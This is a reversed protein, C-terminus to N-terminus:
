AWKFIFNKQYPSHRPGTDYLNLGTSDTVSMPFASANSFFWMIEGAYAGHPYSITVRKPSFSSAGVSVSQPAAEVVRGIPAAVATTAAIAALAIVLGVAAFWSM